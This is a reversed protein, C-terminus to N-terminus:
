LVEWYPTGLGLFLFIVDGGSFLGMPELQLNLVQTFFVVDSDIIFVGGCDLVLIIVTCDLVVLIIVTCDLVVLIIVTCGLVVLIIVTCDLVTYDAVGFVTVDDHSCPTITDPHSPM